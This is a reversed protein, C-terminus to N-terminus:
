LVGVATISEDVASDVAGASAVPADNACPCHLSAICYSPKRHKTKYNILFREEYTYSALRLVTSGLNKKETNVALNKPRSKM